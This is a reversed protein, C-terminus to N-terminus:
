PQPPPAMVRAPRARIAAATPLRLFLLAALIAGYILPERIDAKVLWLFHLVALAGVVYVARHLRRWWPGLRQVMRKTSTAALPVLLVFATFGVTIYPRKMVDEVMAEWDFFQDLVLWTLFHLCAYFFAFLGLMRRYSVLRNNGTLRRLPTIALTILLFRLAWDGTFHTIEEIPNAGLDDAVGRFVLVALPVLCAIFLAPRVARRM